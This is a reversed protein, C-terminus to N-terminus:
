KNENSYYKRIRQRDERSKDGKFYIEILEIRDDDKFYAYIIRIGSLSGRGKLSQCAFKRAKYTQPKIISLGAIQVIGGNDINLQHFLKLQTKIFVKLDQQLTPYNKELKKLDRKFESLVLIESFKKKM